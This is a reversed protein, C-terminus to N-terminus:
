QKKKHTWNLTAFCFFCKLRQLSRLRRGVVLGEGNVLKLVLYLSSLHVLQILSFKSNQCKVKSRLVSNKSSAQSVLATIPLPKQRAFLKKRACHKCVSLEQVCNKKRVFLQKGLFLKKPCVNNKEQWINENRTAGKEADSRVPSSTM